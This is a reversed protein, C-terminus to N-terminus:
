VIFNNLLALLATWQKCEVIVNISHNDTGVSNKAECYYIGAQNIDTIPQILNDGVTLMKKPM